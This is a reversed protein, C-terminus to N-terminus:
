PIQIGDVVDANKFGIGFAADVVSTADAERNNLLLTPSAALIKDRDLYLRLQIKGPELITSTPDLQERQGPKALVFLSGNVIKRPTVLSQTFAIPKDEWGGSGDDLRHVFVQVKALNPWSKPIGKIRVVHQTPYWNDEPLEEDSEYGGSVSAAYDELWHLWAKYSQDGEHMKIGGMHSVPMRSSPKGIKGDSDKPPLKATPKQILLSMRAAELNILPLQNVAVKQSNGIIRSSAILSRMTEMPTEKFINMRAGYEKVFDRHREIPKKHMPNAPDLEGPTHCPFCRMRQSWVNRVFSDLVRDKRTHRIVHDSYGPGAKTSTTAPKAGLLGKDQCCAKIWHSFADYEAKRNKAHIRQSLADPDSEGMSILDLIKSDNPRETNILGQDRLSLFTERSSPLIYDKLDVASLHCQVCSSPDPSDFIPKLRAEFVAEPTPEDTLGTAPASLILGITVILKSYYM